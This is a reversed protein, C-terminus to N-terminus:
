THKRNVTEKLVKLGKAREEWKVAAKSSGRRYRQNWSKAPHMGFPKSHFRENTIKM